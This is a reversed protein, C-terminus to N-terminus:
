LHKHVIQYIDSSSLPKPCIEDFGTSSEGVGGAQAGNATVAVVLQRETREGSLLAAAEFARFRALM